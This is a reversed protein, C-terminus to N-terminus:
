SDVLGRERALQGLRDKLREFRKRLAATEVPAGDGSLVETIEDWSLKQDIRLTLLTQEEASLLGRLEALAGRQREVRDVTATRIEVALRSVEGTLFPRGLRKFADDRVNLSANWAIKFSWTRVSSEGRFAGIGRWVKECWLSFADAADAEDRLVARLYGLIKPGLAEIVFVAAAAADGAGLLERVRADLSM